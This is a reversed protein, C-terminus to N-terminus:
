CPTSVLTRQLSTTGIESPGKDSTGSYKIVALVLNCYNHFVKLNLNERRLRENEEQLNHKMEVLRLYQGCSPCESIPLSFLSFSLNFFLFFPITIFCSFFIFISSVSLSSLVRLCFVLSLLFSFFLALSFFIPFRKWPRSVTKLDRRKGLLVWCESLVGAFFIM